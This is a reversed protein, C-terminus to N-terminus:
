HGCGPRARLYGHERLQEYAAAVTARSLGLVQAFDRESPMRVGVSLRGDVVLLRLRGALDQYVPSVLAAPGVLSRVQQGSVWRASMVGSHWFQVPDM